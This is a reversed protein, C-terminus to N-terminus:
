SDKKHGNGILGGSLNGKWKGKWSLSKLDYIFGWFM